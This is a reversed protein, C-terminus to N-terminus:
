RVTLKKSRHGSSDRVYCTVSRRPRTIKFGYFGDDDTTQSKTSLSSCYLRIKINGVGTKAANRANGFLLVRQGTRRSKLSLTAVEASNGLSSEPIPQPYPGASAAVTVANYANIRGQSLVKGHLSSVKDVSSMIIGKLDTYTLAGNTAKLLGALAAVHPTAMSTGGLYQYASGLWTSLIEDGPAAVDVSSVGYNSFDALTDHQTSAAVSMVNDLGSSAPYVPYRDNNSSDNGAAAVVLVGRSRAYDIADDITASKDSGGLSLSIVSAGREVAYRIGAAVDANTGSGDADLVRVPVIGVQWNVGVIGVSNGGVAGVIGACHSGHGNEDVPDADAASFDYGYVDDIYGNGDDDLGNAMVEGSNVAINAFLDPHNYNVGTDVIAVKVDASGTSVGWAAESQMRQHAYQHSFSPDNPTVAGVRYLSNAECILPVGENLALIRQCVSEVTKTDLAVPSKGSTSINSASTVIAVGQEFRASRIKAEPPLKLNPVVFRGFSRSRRSASYSVVIERGRYVLSASQAEVRPEFALSVCVGLVLSLVRSFRGLALSRSTGHRAHTM